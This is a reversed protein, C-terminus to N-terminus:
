KGARGRRSTPEASAEPPKEAPPAVPPLEPKAAEASTAAATAPPLVNIPAVAPGDLADLGHLDRWRRRAQRIDDAYGQLQEVVSAYASRFLAFM